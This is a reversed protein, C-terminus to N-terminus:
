SCSAATTASSAICLRCASGTRACLRRPVAAPHRRSGRRRHRHGRRDRRAHDHRAQGPRPRAPAAALTLTRGDAMARLGNTALNWVIQRIQAEDALDGCRSPRCTAAFRTRTACQPSNQLLTRPTPSSRGCTSGPAVRQAAAARLRSLQSDDREPSRVRPARHGDAAVARRQAATGAALIQLSGSMSALPNRIEHAIGAAMEGVAALRQQIRAEREHRRAETVDQFTFVFGVEGRPTRPHATSIGSSSRAATVRVQLRLEVRPLRPRGRAVSCDPSSPRCSSSVRGCPSRAGAGGNCRHDGRRGQQLEPDARRHRDHRPRRDPQQHRARQVGAPRRASEVDARTGRGHAPAARGALREVARDALFGFINLFVIFLAM